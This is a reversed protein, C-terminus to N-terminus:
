KGEGAVSAFDAPTLAKTPYTDFVSANQETREIRFQKVNEDAGGDGVKFDRGNVTIKRTYKKANVSDDDEDDSQEAAKEIDSKRFVKTQDIAEEEEVADDVPAEEKSSLDKELDILLNHCYKCLVAEESIQKHCFQCEKTKM